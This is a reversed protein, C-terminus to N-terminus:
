AAQARWASETLERAELPRGFSPDTTTLFPQMGLKSMVRGSAVNEPIFISIIRDLGVREFGYGLSARGGETALGRGWHDLHLRWGVEVAPMVPPLWDVTALGMYGILGPEERLEVAWSGFGHTDWHGVHRDLFRRSEERTMGRGVPFWSVAPIAFIDALADLDDPRWPRLRLSGADLVVPEIPELGASTM